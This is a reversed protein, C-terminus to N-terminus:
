GSMRCSPGSLRESVGGRGAWCPPSPFLASLSVRPSLYLCNLIIVFYISISSITITTIIIIIIFICVLSYVICNERWRIVSEYDTGLCHDHFRSSESKAFKSFSRFFNSRRCWLPNLSVAFLFASRNRDGPWGENRLQAHHGHYPINGSALQDIHRAM